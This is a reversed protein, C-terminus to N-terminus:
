QWFRSLVALVQEVGDGAASKAMAEAMQGCHNYADIIATLLSDPTLEEEPLVHCFGQSQFSAANLIQDGRSANRSLPILLSPKQLALLESIANAGARSLVLNAAALLHPLEEGAYAFQKYGPQNLSEDVNGQGCLHILRYSRLLKPLTQRLATNIKVSGSSGGMMLLLPRPDNPEFGCLALGKQPNGDFLMQRIPTGTLVAKEGVAAVTEPFCVCVAKAFPICMKNALGPTIDSEHIVVPIRLMWGAVVVPVSVFGGKSFILQPKEKKVVTYADKLGKVVRFADKVNELSFYRRLKGSSITRYPIGCAEILQKEIGKHSGVYVLTFGKKQLAPMLAINPNVHGATGGGTLLIKKVTIVGLLFDMTIFRM